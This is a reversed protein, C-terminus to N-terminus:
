LSCDQASRAAVSSGASRGIQQEAAGQLDALSPCAALAINLLVRELPVQPAAEAMGFRVAIYCRASGLLVAASGNLLYLNIINKLLLVFGFM